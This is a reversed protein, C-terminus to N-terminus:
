KFFFSVDSIICVAGEDDRTFANVVEVHLDVTSMLLGGRTLVTWAGLGGVHDTVASLVGVHVSRSSGFFEPKIKMQM